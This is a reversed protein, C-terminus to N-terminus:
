KEAVQVRLAEISRPERCRVFWYVVRPMEAPWADRWEPRVDRGWAGFGEEVGLM